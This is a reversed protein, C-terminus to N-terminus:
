KSFLTANISSSFDDTKFLIFWILRIIEKQAKKSPHRSRVLNEIFDLTTRCPIPNNLSDKVEKSLSEAFTYLDLQAM